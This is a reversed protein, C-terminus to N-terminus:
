KVGGSFDFSTQDKPSDTLGGQGDSFYMASPRELAPKKVAVADAVQFAGEVGRQATVSLTLTITGKKGTEEVAAVLEAFKESVEAGLRGRRHTALWSPFDVGEKTTEDAAAGTAGNTNEM